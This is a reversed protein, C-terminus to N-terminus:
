LSGRTIIYVNPRLKAAQSPCLNGPFPFSPRVTTIPAVKEM